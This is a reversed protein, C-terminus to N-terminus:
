LFRIEVRTAFEMYIAEQGTRRKFTRLIEEVDAVRNETVVISYVASTDVRRAGSERMRWAGRIYGVFTWAGFAAYCADEVDAIEISLDRGDNDKVPLYFTVKVQPPPDSDRPEDAM